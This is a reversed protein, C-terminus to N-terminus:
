DSEIVGPKSPKTEIYHRKLYKRAVDNRGDIDKARKYELWFCEDRVSKRFLSAFITCAVTLGAFINTDDYLFFLPYSFDVDDLARSYIFLGCPWITTVLLLWAQGEEAISAGQLRYLEMLPIYHTLAAGMVIWPVGLAFVEGVIHHRWTVAFLCALVAFCYVTLRHQRICFDFLRGSM